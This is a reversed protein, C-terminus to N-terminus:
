LRRVALVTIDDLMVSHNGFSDAASLVEGVISAAHAGELERMLTRLRALGFEDGAANQREVVGDTYLLLVDGSRMTVEASEFRSAPLPGLLTGGRDLEVFEDGRGLLPPNHGANCYTLRGDRRLEAYFLSVFRSALAARAMVRNLREIMVPIPTQDWVGMRLGIIADRAMLAAPLGHGSSDLIALGLRDEALPFYDYLDGGVIEAPLSCAALEYGEFQPLARPLLSEQIVRAETFIDVVHQQQLKLNIVHRLATLTSLLEDHRPEGTVSFAIIHSNDQGVTIAAFTSSVGITHEFEIDFGREGRSMILLGNALLERHPPYDPPVRLGRPAHRSRGFGAVLVYEDGQREYIRGGVFGLDTAFRLLLGELISELMDPVNETREIQGLATELKRFLARFEAGNRASATDTVEVHTEEASM